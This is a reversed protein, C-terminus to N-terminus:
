VKFRFLKAPRHSVDTEIKDTEEVIEAAIMRKRFNRNDYSQQEILEYVLQLSNLAFFPPLIHKLLAPSINLKLFELAKQIMEKHDFALSPLNKILHFETINPITSQELLCIFGISITRERVDREPDTFTHFQTLIPNKYSTLERLKRIVTDEAKETPQLLGGPLEYKGKFPEKERKVLFVKLQNQHITIIVPDVAVRAHEYQVM